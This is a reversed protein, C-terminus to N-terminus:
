FFYLVLCYFSFLKLHQTKQETYSKYLGKINDKEEIIINIQMIM